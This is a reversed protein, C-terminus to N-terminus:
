PVCPQICGQVAQNFVTITSCKVDIGATDCDTDMTCTPPLMPMPFGGGTTGGGTTGGTTAGGDGAGGDPTAASPTCFGKVGMIFAPAMSCTFNGTCPAEAPLGADSLDVGCQCEGVLKGGSCQQGGPMSGCMCMAPVGDTCEAGGTNGTGDNGGGTTQGGNSGNGNTGDGNTKDGNGGGNASADSTDKTGSDGCAMSAAALGCAVIFISRRSLGM